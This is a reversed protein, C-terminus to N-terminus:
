RNWNIDSISDPIGTTLCLSCLQKWHYNMEQESWDRKSSGTRRADSQTHYIRSAKEVHFVRRVGYDSLLDNTVADILGHEYCFIVLDAVDPRYNNVLIHIFNVREKPSLDNM